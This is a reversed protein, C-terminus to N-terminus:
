KFLDDFRKKPDISDKSATKEGYRFEECFNMAEKDPIFETESIMCDNRLGIKYFKCGKCCHLPSQCQECLARYSIMGGLTAEIRHGCKWCNM